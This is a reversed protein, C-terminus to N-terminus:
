SPKYPTLIFLEARRRVRMAFDFRDIATCLELDAEPFEPRAPNSFIRGPGSNLVRQQFTAPDPSLGALLCEIYEACAADEDGFAALADDSANFRSGAAIGTIVFTLSEPNIQRIARATASAVVFSTALLNNARQSHVIGQTGASTRQIMVRGHLDHAGNHQSLILEAPSNSFDFGLVPLGNDEGMILYDPFRQRLQFAEEVTGVLIIERVGAALAYAATSFARLVDIAVVLGNATACTELTAKQIQM